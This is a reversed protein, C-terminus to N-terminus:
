PKLLRATPERGARFTLLIREPRHRPQTVTIFLRDGAHFRRGDLGHLLRRARRASAHRPRIRPCRRGRCAITVSAARPLHDVTITRLRTTTGAWHWAIVFRAHITARGHPNPTTQPNSTTITQDLVTSANGAADTVTVALEHQGDPLGVTPVPADVVESTLCPQQHDFMLAGSSPDTGVPVCEGGNANPSGTWVTQGDLAVSVAYIGPGSPEAATFVLHGTGRVRRNLASGSFGSGQPSVNSSLLLHAWSIEALAWANDLANQNCPTGTTSFCAADAFLDGGHDAPLAVPGSFKPASGCTTFFAVCQFFVDGFSPEHLRAEAAASGSSNSGYGYASLTAGVTGGVLTSGAPPQYQLYADAGAPAAALSSLEAVMPSGPSCQTSTIAAGGGSSADTWGESPAATGNPNVCSVQMWTGAVAPQAALAGAALVTVLVSTALM